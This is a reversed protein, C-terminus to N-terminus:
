SIIFEFFDLGIGGRLSRLPGVEIPSEVRLGYGRLEDEEDYSPNLSGWTHMQMVLKSRTYRESSPDTGLGALFAVYTGDLGWSVQGEFLLHSGDRVGSDLGLGAQVRPYFHLGSPQARLAGELHIGELLVAFPSYLGGFVRVKGAAGVGV